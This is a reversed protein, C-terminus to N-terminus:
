IDNQRSWMATKTLEAKINTVNYHHAEIGEFHIQPRQQHRDSKVGAAGHEHRHIGRDTADADNQNGRREHRPAEHYIVQQPSVPQEDIEMQEFGLDGSTSAELSRLREAELSIPIEEFKKRKLGRQFPVKSTIVNREFHSGSM